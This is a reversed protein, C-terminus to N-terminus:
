RLSNSAAIFFILTAEKNACPIPLRIYFEELCPRILTLSVTRPYNLTVYLPENNRFTQNLVSSRQDYSITDIQGFVSTFTSLIPLWTLSPSSMRLTTWETNTFLMVRNIISMLCAHKITYHMHHATLWRVTPLRPALVAHTSQFKALIRISSKMVVSCNPAIRKIPKARSPRGRTRRESQGDNVDVSTMYDRATKNATSQREGEQLRTETQRSQFSSMKSLVTLRGASPGPQM